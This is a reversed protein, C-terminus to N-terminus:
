NSFSIILTSSWIYIQNLELLQLHYTKWRESVVNITSNAKEPFELINNLFNDVLLSGVFKWPFVNSGIKKRTPPLWSSGLFCTAALKKTLFIRWNGLTSAWEIAHFCRDEMSSRQQWNKHFAGADARGVSHSDVGAADHNLFILTMNLEVWDFSSNGHANKHSERFSRPLLM